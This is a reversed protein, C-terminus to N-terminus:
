PLRMSNRAGCHTSTSREEQRAGRPWNTLKAAGCYSEWVWLSHRRRLAAVGPGATEPLGSASSERRSRRRERSRATARSSWGVAAGALYTKGTM